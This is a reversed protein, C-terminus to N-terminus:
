SQNTDAFYWDCGPVALERVAKEAFEFDDNSFYDTFGGVKGRRVKRSEEDDRRGPLMSSDKFVGKAEMSKMRDFSAFEVAESIIEDSLDGAGIFDLTKKLALAPDKRMEEYRLLLFDSCKEKNLFWINYFSIIKRLGFVDDRLFDSLSGSFTHMRTSEQFFSSVITDRIDRIIFIVKKNAYLGTKFKLNRYVCYDYLNFPGDHTFVTKFVSAKATLKYTDLIDVSDIRFGITIARGIMVRVWTRGTKPYSVLFVQAKKNLYIQRFIQLVKGPERFSNPILKLYYQAKM